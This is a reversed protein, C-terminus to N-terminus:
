MSFRANEPSKVMSAVVLYSVLAEMGVKDVDTWRQFAQDGFEDTFFIEYEPEEIVMNNVFLVNKLLPRNCEFGSIRTEPKLEIHKQKRRSTQSSAQEPAPLASQIGLERLIQRLREYRRSLSNMLDKLMINKKKLIIERLEDLKSIGFAGFLFPKHVDFNRGDTGKYIAKTTIEEKLHIGLKKAEERVVKIVETKSIVNLRAEEEAKKIEEEKDPKDLDLRVIPSAKVLKRQDGAQDDTAIDKGKRQPISPEISSQSPNHKPGEPKEQINADTEGEIHSPPEKTANHTANKGEVNAPTNTLAFILTVSSLPASSSQGKLANYRETLMSKISSTDEQLSSMSSKIHTQARELGLIRSGLNWAMNTSSKMLAASAEEQKFAYDQINNVISQLTSFDFSWVSSLIESNHTSIKAFTKSAEKIKIHTAPDDKVSKKIDKLLQTIVELGKYHDNITTSSKELSSISAEVLKDTQDQHQTEDSQPNNDMEEGAGLIEEESEQVKDESLLISRVDAYSLIMPETDTEGEYSPEGKNETLSQYGLRSSQTQDEQYKAGTGSLDADTPNQTDCGLLASGRLLFSCYLFLEVNNLSNVLWM